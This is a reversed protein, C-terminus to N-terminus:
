YKKNRYTRRRKRSKRKRRRSGGKYNIKYPLWENPQVVKIDSVPTAYYTLGLGGKGGKLKKRSKGGMTSTLPKIQPTQQSTDSPAANSTYAPAANSTYAPAPTSSFPNLNSAQEKIKSFYSDGSDNSDGFPNFSWGGRQSIKGKCKGKNKSHRYKTM